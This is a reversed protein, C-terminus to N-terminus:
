NREMFPPFRYNSLLPLVEVRKNIFFSSLYGKKEVSGGRNKSEIFEHM